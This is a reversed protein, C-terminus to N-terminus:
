YNYLEVIADVITTIVEQRFEYGRLSDLGKKDSLLEVVLVDLRDVLERKLDEYEESRTGM